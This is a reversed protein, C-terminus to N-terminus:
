SQRCIPCIKSDSDRRWLELCRKHMWQGCCAKMHMSGKWSHIPESCIVCPKPTWPRARMTCAYCVERDLHKIFYEFCECFRFNYATNIYRMTDYLEESEPEQSLTFMYLTYNDDENGMAGYEHDLIRKIKGHCDKTEDYVMSLEFTMMTDTNESTSQLVFVMDGSQNSFMIADEDKHLAQLADMMHAASTIFRDSKDDEIAVVNVDRLVSPDCTTDDENDGCTEDETTSDMVTSATVAVQTRRRKTSHVPPTEANGQDMKWNDSLRNFGM